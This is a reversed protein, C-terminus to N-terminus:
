LHDEIEQFTTTATGIKAVVRGAALNAVYASEAFTLQNALGVAFAAVVTDGAGTVDYIESARTHIDTKSGNSEILSMGKESRTILLGSLGLAAVLDLGWRHIEAEDAPTKGIAAKFESFNPTIVTAGQYRSYDEGKPDVIVPVSFSKALAILRQCLGASLTQKGYDSLLLVSQPAMMERVCVWLKEEDWETLPTLEDHDIRVVHQHHAIVRTKLITRRYPLAWVSESAVGCEALAAFLRDRSTDEGVVSILHPIANLTLLNAAVNAAGGPQYSRREVKCVPVPAEPSIRTVSCWIFEDLMVDGVVIVSAPRKAKLGRILAL